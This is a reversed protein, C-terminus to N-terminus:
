EGGSLRNRYTDSLLSRQPRDDQLEVTQGDPFTCYLKGNARHIGDIDLGRRLLIKIVENLSIDWEEALEDLAAKTQRSLTVTFRQPTRDSSGM